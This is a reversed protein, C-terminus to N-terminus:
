DGAREGPVPPRRLYYSEGRYAVRRLRGSELLRAVVSWQAHNRELLVRVASERMPHVATVSLLDAAADGTAAFADGEYGVLLEVRPLRETFAHYARNIGAEDPGAVGPVAPPRTPVALYAAAPALGAVFAATAAVEEERDNVGAVLMTETALSGTFEAAFRRVGALVRELTLGPHPRQIRGWVSEHVADVKVSVWDAAALAQRVEPRWLLSGNSIVAIPIGAPRLLDIAQGLGEDLTPEGDPVFTLYDVAEGRARVQELRAWVADRIREPPYVARRELTQDPTPGVQCYICAYSCSKPPINNIGLSRGLRRSPVPGFTIATAHQVMTPGM